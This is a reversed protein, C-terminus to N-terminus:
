RVGKHKQLLLDIAVLDHDEALGGARKASLYFVFLFGWRGATVM